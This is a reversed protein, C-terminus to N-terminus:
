ILKSAELLGNGGKYTINNINVRVFQDVDNQELFKIGYKKKFVSLYFASITKLESDIQKTNFYNEEIFNIAESFKWLSLAEICNRIIITENSKKLLDFIDQAFENTQIHIMSRIVAAQIKTDETSLLDLLPQYVKKTGLRGMIMISYLKVYDDFHTSASKIIEDLSDLGLIESYSQIAMQRVTSAEDQYAVELLKHAIDPTGIEGLEGAAKVRDNADQSYLRSLTISLKDNNGQNMIIM